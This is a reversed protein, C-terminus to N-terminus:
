HKITDDNFNDSNNTDCNMAKANAGDTDVGNTERGLGAPEGRRGGRAGPPAEPFM